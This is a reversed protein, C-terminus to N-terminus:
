QNETTTVMASLDAPRPGPKPSACTASPAVPFGDPSCTRLRSAYPSSPVRSTGNRVLQAASWSSRRKRGLPSLAPASPSSSPSVHSPLIDLYGPLFTYTREAWAANVIHLRMPGGDAGLKGEGRSALEQDLANFAPHLQAPPLTFHLASAMESATTGAAGAYTMALAISISAPSFVLNDNTAVLQKYAAFAFAANDSALTASDSAPVKPDLVRQAQSTATTLELAVRRM